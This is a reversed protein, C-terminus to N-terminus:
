EETSRSNRRNRRGGFSTIGLGGISSLLLLSSLPLPVSTVSSSGFRFDSVTVETQTDSQGVLLFELLYEDSSLESVDFLSTFSQGLFDRALFSSILTDAFYVELWDQDGALTFELNFLLVDDGPDVSIFSSFYANSNTTMRATSNFSNFDTGELRESTVELSRTTTQYQTTGPRADFAGTDELAASYDFGGSLNSIDGGVTDLYKQWVGAHGANYPFNTAGKIPEGFNVDDGALLNGLQTGYYNEFYTVGASAALWTYERETLGVYSRGNIFSTDTPADLVTMHTPTIGQAALQEAVQLNVVSGYSHGILHIPEQYTAGKLLNAIKQGALKGVSRANRLPEIPESTKSFADEWYVLVVNFDDSYEEEFRNKFSQLIDVDSADDTFPTDRQWGHTVVVTPKDLSFNVEDSVVRVTGFEELSLEPDRTETEIEELVVVSRPDVEFTLFDSVLGDSSYTRITGDGVVSRSFDFDGAEDPIGVRDILNPRKPLFESESFSLTVGKRLTGPEDPLFIKNPDDTTLSFTLLENSFAVQDFRQGPLFDVDNGMRISVVQDRVVTRGDVRVRFEGDPDDETLSFTTDDERAFRDYNAFLDPDYELEVAVREGVLDPDGTSGTVEGSLELTITAAAGAQPLLALLSFCFLAYKM